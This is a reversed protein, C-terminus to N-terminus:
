AKPIFWYKLNIVGIAYLLKQVFFCKELKTILGTTTSACQQIMSNVVKAWIERTVMGVVRTTANTTRFMYFAIYDILTEVQTWWM